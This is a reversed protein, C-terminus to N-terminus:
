AIKFRGVLSSLNTAYNNLEESSAKVQETIAANSQAYEDISCISESVSDAAFKQQNAATAITANMQSLTEIVDSVDTLKNRVQSVLDIGSQAMTAASGMSSVAKGAASELANIRNQVEVTSQQTRAALSRVEDAVVSFGRGHEGARAAEIAANLALLNTQEAIEDIVRLIVKIEDVESSLLSIVGSASEVGHVLKDIQLRAEEAFDASQKSITDADESTRSSQETNNAVEKISMHFEEVAAAVMETQMKQQSAADMAVVTSGKLQTSSSAMCESTQKLEIVLDKIFENFLNFAKGLEGIEDDRNAEELQQTLDAGGTAIEKLNSILHNLPKTLSRAFYLGIILAIVVIAITIYLSINLMKTELLYAQELAEAKDIESLIAWNNGGVKIPAYASFVREGRYDLYEEFGANGKLASDVGNSAVKQLGISTGKADIINAEVGQGSQKLAQVYAAKNEILFRSQNRMTKDSGVLYTEGSLGFGVDAWKENSTMIANINDIPMQFILVAIKQGNEFIPSAIFAAPDQYSPLYSAFDTQFVQQANNFSNAIKFADAISTNAYPGTLLSTAFDSEKFVSYVIHGTNPEVIFIDYFGFKILYDRFASHYKEHSKSYLSDDEATMLVDKSGLPNANKAIYLDQWYLADQSMANIIQSINAAENQNRKKFENNFDERYFTSLDDNKIQNASEYEFFNQNFEKAAEIVMLNNSFASVQNEISKFYGEIQQKKQERSATLARKKEQELSTFLSDISTKSLISALLILPLIAMLSMMLLLKTRIKM